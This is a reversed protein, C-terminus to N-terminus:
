RMMEGCNVLLNQGTIGRSLDSCFFTAADAVERDETMRRLAFSGTIEALVDERTKGENKARFDVFMEVNPGWMWSPVVTNVRIGEPGLEDALYYMTTLLAGKSAGYGAQPLSPKFMSQSGVLVISGGGAAKMAPVCSRIAHMAGVVNTEFAQSWRELDANLVGGFADERAAVQVLGHVAGFRDVAAAALEDCSGQDSIDAVQALLRTGSPDLETAAEQLRDESRAAIVVNAGQELLAAAVERGLGVGVGTVIATKGDMLM